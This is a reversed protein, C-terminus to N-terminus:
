TPKRMIKQMEAAEAERRIQRARRKVDVIFIIVFLLADWLLILPHFDNWVFAIVGLSIVIGCFFGMTMPFNSLLFYARGMATMCATRSEM